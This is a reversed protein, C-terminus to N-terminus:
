EGWGSRESGCWRSRRSYAGHPDTVADVHALWAALADLDTALDTALDGSRDRLPDDADSSESFRVSFRRRPLRPSRGKFRLAVVRYLENRCVQTGLPCDADRRSHPFWAGRLREGSPGTWVPLAHQENSAGTRCSLTMNICFSCILARSMPRRPKASPPLRSRSVKSGTRAPIAVAHLPSLVVAGDLESDSGTSVVVVSGSVVTVVTGVVVTNGADGVVAGPVTGESGGVVVDGAVTVLGVDFPGLVEVGGVVGNSSDCAATALAYVAANSAHVAHMAM